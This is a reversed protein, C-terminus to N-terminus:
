AGGKWTALGLATLDQAPNRGKQEMIEDRNLIGKERLAVAMDCAQVPGSSCIFVGKGDILRARRIVVKSKESGVGIPRSVKEPLKMEVLGAFRLWSLIRNVDVRFTKSSYTAAMLNQFRSVPFGEGPHVVQYFERIVVHRELQKVLYDAVDSELSEASSLQDVIEISDATAPKVLFFAFLDGVINWVTKTSYGFADEIDTVSVPGEEKVFKLVALATSLQSQPIFTLPIPPIQGTTLYERFIDWYVSYKAGTRLILRRQYLYEAVEKGFKEEVDLLDAPSNAAIYKLCAYQKNDLNLTDEEFLKSAHFQSEVLSRQSIGRSLQRYVHICLKKLMWPLGQSQELLHRRLPYELERASIRKSYNFKM